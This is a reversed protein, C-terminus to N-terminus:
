ASSPMRSVSSHSSNLRTSKRDITRVRHHLIDQFRILLPTQLGEAIAEQVVDVLPIRAGQEQLPSVYLNGDPAVGFYGDGWRDIMYLATADDVTWPEVPAAPAPHNERLDLANEQARRPRRAAADPM